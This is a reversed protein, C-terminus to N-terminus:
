VVRSPPPWMEVVGDRGEPGSCLDCTPEGPVSTLKPACELAKEVFDSKESCAICGCGHELILQQLEKVRMRSFQERRDSPELQDITQSQSEAWIDLAGEEGHLLEVAKRIFDHKEACFACAWGRRDFLSKLDRGSWEALDVFQGDLLVNISATKSFDEMIQIADQVLPPLGVDPAHHTTGTNNVACVADKVADATFTVTTWFPKAKLEDVRIGSLDEYFHQAAEVSKWAARRQEKGKARTYKQFADIVGEQAPRLVDPVGMRKLSAEAQQTRFRVLASLFDEKFMCGDCPVQYRDVLAELKERTMVELPLPATGWQPDRYSVPYLFFLAALDDETPRVQTASRSTTSAMLAERYHRSVRETLPYPRLSLGVDSGLNIYSNPSVPPEDVLSLTGDAHGLGLIHGMEHSLVAEFHYCPTFTSINPCLKIYRFGACVIALNIAFLVFDWRRQMKLRYKEHMNQFLGENVTKTDNEQAPRALAVTNARKLLPELNEETGDAERPNSGGREYKPVRPRVVFFGSKEPPVETFDQHCRSLVWMFLSISVILLITVAHSVIYQLAPSDDLCMERPNFYYCYKTNVVIEWRSVYSKPMEKGNTGIIPVRRPVDLPKAYAIAKGSIAEARVTVAAKVQEVESVNRFYIAPHRDSWVDFAQHVARTLSSCETNYDRISAQMTACFSPRVFFSLGGALSPTGLPGPVSSWRYAQRHFDDADFSM